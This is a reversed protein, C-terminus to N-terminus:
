SELETLTLLFGGHSSNEDVDAFLSSKAYFHHEPFLSFSPHSVTPPLRASLFQLFSGDCVPTKHRELVILLTKDSSGGTKVM